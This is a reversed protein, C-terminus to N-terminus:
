GKQNEGQDTEAKILRKHHLKKVENRYRLPSIERYARFVKEFYTPSKYGCQRAVESVPLDTEALLRSANNIRTVNIYENVTLNTIEKFIRSLYCKNLYFIDSLSALSLNDSFNELVYDTVQHVTQHKRSSVDGSRNLAHERRFRLAFILLNSLTAMVSLRYGAKKEAIENHITGLCSEVYEQAHRDLEIVGRCESFLDALSMEGTSSFFSAFPEESLEILIRDHYIVSSTGSMHIQNKPVIVLSGQHVTYSDQNIFYFREGEVLYYIEYEDHFHKKPMTYDYDRVIRSINIGDTANEYVTRRM